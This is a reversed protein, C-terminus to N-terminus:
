PEPQVWRRGRADRWGSYAPAPVLRIRPPRRSVSASGLWRACRRVQNGRPHCLAFALTRLSERCISTRYCTLPGDMETGSVVPAARESAARTWGRSSTASSARGRRQLSFCGPWIAWPRTSNTSLWSWGSQTYTRILASPSGASTSRKGAPQANVAAMARSSSGYVEAALPPSHARTAGANPNGSRLLGKRALVAYRHRGRAARVERKGRVEEDQLPGDILGHDREVSGAKKGALM